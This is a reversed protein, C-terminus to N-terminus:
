GGFTRACVGGGREGFEKTWDLDSYPYRFAAFCSYADSPPEDLVHSCIVHQDFLAKGVRKVSQVLSLISFMTLSNTGLDTAKAM